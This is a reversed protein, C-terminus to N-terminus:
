TQVIHTSINPFPASIIVRIIIVLFTMLLTSNQIRLPRLRARDAHEAAATTEVCRLDAASLVTVVVRRRVAAASKAEAEDQRDKWNSCSECSKLPNSPNVLM